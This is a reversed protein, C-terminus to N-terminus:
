AELLLCSKYGGFGRLFFANSKMICTRFIHAVSREVTKTFLNVSKRKEGFCFCLHEPEGLLDSQRDAESTSCIWSSSFTKSLTLSPFNVDIYTVLM